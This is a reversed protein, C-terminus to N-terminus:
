LDPLDDTLVAKSVYRGVSVSIIQPPASSPSPSPTISYESLDTHFTFDITTMFDPILNWNM